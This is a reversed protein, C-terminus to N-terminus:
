MIAQIVARAGPSHHARYLLPRAGFRQTGTGLVVVGLASM